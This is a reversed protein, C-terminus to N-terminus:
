FKHSFKAWVTRGPEATTYSNGTETDQRRIHPYYFKDTLNDVGLSLM